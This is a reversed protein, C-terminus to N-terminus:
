DISRSALQESIKAARDKNVYTLIEGVQEGKMHSFVQLVVTLDMKDVIEAASKPKMSSYVKVLQKIKKDEEMAKKQEAQSALAAKQNLDEEIKKQIGSLEDIKEQIDRKLLDLQAREKKIRTEEEQLAIRKKELTNMVARMDEPLLVPPEAAPAANVTSETAAIEEPGSQAQAVSILPAVRAIPKLQFGGALYFGAIMMKALVFGFILTKIRYKPVLRM